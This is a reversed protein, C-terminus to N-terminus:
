LRVTQKNQVLMVTVDRAHVELVVLANLALRQLNTLKGRVLAVVSALQGSLKGALAAV